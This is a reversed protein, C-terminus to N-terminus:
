STEVQTERRIIELCLTYAHKQQKTVQETPIEDLADRAELIARFVESDLGKDKAFFRCVVHKHLLYFVGYLALGVLLLQYLFWFLGIIFSFTDGLWKVEGLLIITGLVMIFWLIASGAIKAIAIIKKKRDVHFKAVKEVKETEM